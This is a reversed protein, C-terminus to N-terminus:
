QQVPCKMACPWTTADGLADDSAGRLPPALIQVNLVQLELENRKVATIYYGMIHIM